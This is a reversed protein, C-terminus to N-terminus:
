DVKFMTVMQKPVIGKMQEMEKKEIEKQELNQNDKFFNYAFYHGLYKTRCDEDNKLIMIEEYNSKEYNGHIIANQTLNWIALEVAITKENKNMRLWRGGDTYFAGNRLPVLSILGMSLPMISLLLFFMNKSILGFPLWLLGFIISTIPGALLIRGFKKYNESNSETPITVGLGGWLSIDKEIYFIIKDNEDRKFGFPGFIFLYFKFGEKRGMLVHGLEHVASSILLNVLSLFILELVQM